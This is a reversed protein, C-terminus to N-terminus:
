EAQVNNYITCYVLEIFYKEIAYKAAAYFNLQLSINPIASSNCLVVFCLMRSKQSRSTCRYHSKNTM